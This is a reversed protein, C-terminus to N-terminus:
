DAWIEAGILTLGLGIMVIGSVISVVKTARPRGLLVTSAGYGIAVYVAACTLTRIGGLMVIQVWIPWGATGSIFQPLLALFFLYLKPNLLNIVLGKLFLMRHSVTLKLTELDSSPPHRLTQIGLWVMYGSGAFTLVRMAISSAAVLAAIGTAVAIVPWSM